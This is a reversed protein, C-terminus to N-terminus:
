GTQTSSRDCAVWVPIDVTGGNVSPVGGQFPTANRSLSEFAQRPTIGDSVRGVWTKNSYTHPGSPIPVEISNPGETGGLAPAEMGGFLSLPIKWRFPSQMTPDM